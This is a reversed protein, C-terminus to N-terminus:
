IQTAFIRFISNSLFFKNTYFVTKYGFFFFFIQLIYFVNALKASGFLFFCFCWHKIRQIFVIWFM